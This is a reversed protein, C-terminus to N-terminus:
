SKQPPADTMKGGKGTNLQVVGKRSTKFDGAEVMAYIAKRRDETTKLCKNLLHGKERCGFCQMNQVWDQTETFTLGTGEDAEAAEPDAKLGAPVAFDSLVRKVEVITMHVKDDGLLFDNNIKTKLALYRGDDTMKLFLATLFQECCAKKAQKEIAAKEALREASASNSMWSKDRGKATMIKSRAKAYLEKHFVAEGGHANVTDRRACFLKYYAEVSDHPKQTTTFLGVHVQVLVMTGQKSEKMGHTLDRTM